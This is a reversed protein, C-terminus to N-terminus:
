GLPVRLYQEMPYEPHFVHQAVFLGSVALTYPFVGAVIVIQDNAAELVVGSEASTGSEEIVLKSVRIDREFVSAVYVAKGETPPEPNYAFSLVGVERREAVDHMESHIRLGTDDSRWLILAIPEGHPTFEVFVQKLPRALEVAIPTPEAWAFSLINM